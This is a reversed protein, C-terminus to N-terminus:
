KPKNLFANGHIDGFKVDCGHVNGMNNFARWRVRCREVNQRNGCKTKSKTWFNQQTVAWSSIKPIQRKKIIWNRLNGGIWWSDDRRVKRFACKRRSSTRWSSPCVKQMKDGLLQDWTERISRWKCVSTGPNQYGYSTRGPNSSTSSSVVSPMRATQNVMPRSKATVREEGSEQQARKAM